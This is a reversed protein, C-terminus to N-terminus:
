LKRLGLHLCGEAFSRDILEYHGPPLEIRREFRGSPIELRRIACARVQFPLSRAGAVVLHRGEISLQIQEAGVGPLAVIAWLLSDTEFLDVPPTWAAQQAASRAPVFFQRQLREAQELLECAEAWMWRFDDRKSM